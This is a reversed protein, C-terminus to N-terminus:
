EVLETEFVVKNSVTKHVPCKSAIEKLKEKQVEDLDGVLKIKKEIVDIQGMEETEIALEAAHKKSYNLYVFVEKLDWKKREAYLKLTMVTCAGVAANLLEFPSPGVDDGGFDVPEDATIHHNDTYIQTTFGNELNLHAVVQEGETSIKANEEKKPLEIYRTAWAGIVEAAYLADGKNMLLHDAGDLSVFSKPHFANNYLEAANSIEVMTDQPSHMILLAKDLNKIKGLLDNKDLDDIFQKQISFPRGGINAEYEDANEFKGPTYKILKKVHGPDSPSGITVVGKVEPLQFAAMLVATGGLSHGILLQPAKYNEKLFKCVDVLDSVDNSFNTEKFSGESKGLGTFDFRVVAIGKSTLSRSIHRVVALDSNCTFCHAFIAFQLAKGNAPLEIKAHLNLGSQTPIAIQTSKM